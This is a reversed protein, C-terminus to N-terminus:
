YLSVRRPKRSAGRFFRGTEALTGDRPRRERDHLVNSRSTVIKVFTM